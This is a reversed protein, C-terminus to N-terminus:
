DSAKHRGSAEDEQRHAAGEGISQLPPGARDPATFAQDMEHGNGLDGVDQRCVARAPLM